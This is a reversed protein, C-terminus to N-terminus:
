EDDGAGVNSQWQAMLATGIDVRSALGVLREDDDVVPLDYLDHEDLLAFARLLGSHSQVRVAEEMVEVVLRTVIEPSPRSAEYEGFDKLVFDFDELLKTFAPMVLQILDRLHLIGILRADDDVVPLTGVHHQVFLRAAEGITASLHLSVVNQKM